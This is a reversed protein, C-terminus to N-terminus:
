GKALKCSNSLQTDVYVNMNSPKLPESEAPLVDLVSLNEYHLSFHMLIGFM